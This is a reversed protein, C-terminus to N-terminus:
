NACSENDEMRETAKVLYKSSDNRSIIKAPIGAVTVGPQLVSNVVVAGAGIVVNDAIKINGIVKAGSAIYVNDGIIPAHQSSANSGITVGEHIRCNKGLRANQHIVTLGYHVIALGPGCTNLGISFGLKQGLKVYRFKYIKEIIKGWISKSCNQWYESKRMLIQYRWIIDHVLRPKNYTIKLAYKDCKLYYILDERNSIM